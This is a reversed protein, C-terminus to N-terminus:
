ENTDETTGVLAIIEEANETISKDLITTRNAYFREEHHSEIKRIVGLLRELSRLAKKEDEAWKAIQYTFEWTDKAQRRRRRVERLLAALQVDETYTGDHLELRHLIDQTEDSTLQEEAAAMRYQEAAERLFTLFGAIIESYLNERGKKKM